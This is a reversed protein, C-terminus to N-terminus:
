STSSPNWMHADMMEPVEKNLKVMILAFSEDAHPMQWMEYFNFGLVRGTNNMM